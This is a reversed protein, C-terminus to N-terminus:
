HMSTLGFEELVLSPSDLVFPEEYEEYFIVEEESRTLGYTTYVEGLSEEFTFV